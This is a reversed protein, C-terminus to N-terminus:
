GTKASCPGSRFRPFSRGLGHVIGSNAFVGLGKAASTAWTALGGTEADDFRSQTHNSAMVESQGLSGNCTVCKTYQTVDRPMHVSQGGYWVFCTTQRDLRFIAGVVFFLLGTKLVEDGKVSVVHYTNQVYCRFYV